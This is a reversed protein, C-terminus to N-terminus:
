NGEKLPIVTQYLSLYISSKCCSYLFSFFFICFWMHRLSCALGLSADRELKIIVYLLYLGYCCVVLCSSNVHHSCHYQQTHSPPGAPAAGKVTTSFHLPHLKPNVYKSISKDQPWVMPIM